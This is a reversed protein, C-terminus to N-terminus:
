RKRPPNDTHAYTTQFTTIPNLVTITTIKEKSYITIVDGPKVEYSPKIIMDNIRVRNKGVTEKAIVRRKIVGILKLYKDIRM